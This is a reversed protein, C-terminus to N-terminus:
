GSWGCAERGVWVGAPCGTLGEIGERGPLGGFGEAEGPGCCIRIVEGGEGVGRGRGGEEPTRTRAARVEVSKAYYGERRPGLAKGDRVQQDLRLGDGASLGVPTRGRHSHPPPAALRSAREFARALRPTDPHLPCPPIM